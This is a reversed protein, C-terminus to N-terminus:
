ELAVKQTASCQVMGEDTGAEMAPVKDQLGACCVVAHRVHRTPTM